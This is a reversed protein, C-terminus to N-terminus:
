ILYATDRGKGRSKDCFGDRKWGPSIDDL